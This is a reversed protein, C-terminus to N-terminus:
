GVLGLTKMLTFIKRYKLLEPDPEAQLCDGQIVVRLGMLGAGENVLERARLFAFWAHGPIRLSGHYSPKEQGDQHFYVAVLVGKVAEEDLRTIVPADTAIATTVLQLTNM